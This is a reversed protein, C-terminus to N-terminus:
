AISWIRILHEQVKRSWDLVIVFDFNSQINWFSFTDDYVGLCIIICMALHSFHIISDYSIQCIVTCIIIHISFADAKVQHVKDANLLCLELYTWIREFAFCDNWSFSILIHYVIFGSNLVVQAQSFFCYCFWGWFSFWM